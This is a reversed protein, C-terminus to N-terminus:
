PEPTGPVCRDDNENFRNKSWEDNVWLYVFFVTALGTSLGAINILFTSKYKVFNRFTILLNHKFM